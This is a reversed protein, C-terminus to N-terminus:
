ASEESAVLQMLTEFDNALDKERILRQSTDAEIRYFQIMAEHHKQDETMSIDGVLDYANAEPPAITEVEKIGYKFFGHYGGITTRFQVPEGVHRISTVLFEPKHTDMREGVKPYQTFMRGGFQFIRVFGIAVSGEVPRMLSRWNHVLLEGVDAGRHISGLDAGERIGLLRVGNWWEHCDVDCVLSEKGEHCMHMLAGISLLHGFAMGDELKVHEYSCNVADGMKIIFPDSTEQWMQAHLARRRDLHREWDPLSFRNEPDVGTQQMHWERALSAHHEIYDEARPGLRARLLPDWLAQDTTLIELFPYKYRNMILDIPIIEVEGFKGSELDLFEQSTIRGGRRSRSKDKFEHGYANLIGDLTSMPGIGHAVILIRTGGKSIGMYEATLTTFYTEWPVDGLGTTLRADVIDPLVGLRGSKKAFRTAQKWAPVFGDEHYFGMVKPQVKVKSM